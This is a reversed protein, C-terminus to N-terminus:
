SGKNNENRKKRSRFTHIKKAIYPQLVMSYIQKGMLGIIASFFAIGGTRLLSGWYTIYLMKFGLFSFMGGIVSFLLAVYRDWFDNEMRRNNLVLKM